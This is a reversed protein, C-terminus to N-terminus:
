GNMNLARMEHPAGLEELVIRAGTSRTNPSHWFVLDGKSDAM